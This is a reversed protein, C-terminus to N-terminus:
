HLQKWKRGNEYMEFVRRHYLSAEGYNRDFTKDAKYGHQYSLSKLIDRHYVRWDTGHEEAWRKISYWQAAEDLRKQQQEIKKQQDAALQRADAYSTPLQAREKKELEKWRRNVKTRLERGYGTMLDFCQMRTLRYERYTHGNEAEYTSEGIKPLGLSEYSENLEDCDRLINDHRKGTLSAIERSSMTVPVEEFNGEFLTLEKTEM